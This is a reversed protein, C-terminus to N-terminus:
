SLMPATDVSMAGVYRDVGLRDGGGDQQDISVPTDIFHRGLTPRADSSVRDVSRRCDVSM